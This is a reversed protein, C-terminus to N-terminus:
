AINIEINQTSLSAIGNYPTAINTTVWAGGDARIELSDVQHGPVENIPTFLRSYVVPEGITFNEQFYEVLEARILDAGDGPFESSDVTLTMRVDVLVPVPREFHMDRPFGQSDFIIYSTNGESAIGLPKNRWIAVAIEAPDGGQIVPKFSHGPLDYVPDYTGSENEYIAVYRVGDIDMLAAYLADSINQARLFKSDRFRIRLESDTETDRGSVADFPNNISDWGLIPTAIANISNAEQEKFGVEENIVETRGKIKLVRINTTNFSIYEFIDVKEVVLWSGEYYVNLSTFNDIQDRLKDLITAPTDTETGVTSVVSTTQGMTLTITYNRGLVAEAIDFKFGINQTRALDVGITIDYLTNDSARATATGAPIFTNEDGWIVVTATTATPPNRTLGGYQVLNDLAIGTASNPDFALYIQQIAEWLDALPLSTLGIIRGITSSDSTDVIDNPPVLDQFIPQAGSKMDSVVEGLRKIELGAETM